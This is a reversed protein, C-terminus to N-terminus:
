ESQSGSVREFYADSNPVRVEDSHEKQWAAIVNHGEEILDLHHQPSGNMQCVQWYFKIVEPLLRDRGRFVFVPEDEGITGHETTVKGYKLDKAM